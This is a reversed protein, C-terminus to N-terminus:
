LPSRICYRLISLSKRQKFHLRLNATPTAMLNLILHGRQPCINSYSFAGRSLPTHSSNACLGSCQPHYQHRPLGTCLQWAPDDRVPCRDFIHRRLASARSAPRSYGAFFVLVPLARSCGQRRMRLRSHISSARNPVMRVLLIPRRIVYGANDIKLTM